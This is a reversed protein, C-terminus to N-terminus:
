CYCAQITEGQASGRFLLASEICVLMLAIRQSSVPKMEYIALAAM